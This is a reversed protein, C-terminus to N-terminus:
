TAGKGEITENGDVPCQTESNKGQLLLLIRKNCETKSGTQNRLERQSSEKRTSIKLICIIEERELKKKKKLSNGVYMAELEENRM